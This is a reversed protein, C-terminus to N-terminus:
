RRLNATRRFATGTTRSSPQISVGFVELARRILHNWNNPLVASSQFATWPKGLPCAASGYKLFELAFRFRGWM